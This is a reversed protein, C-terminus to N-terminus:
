TRWIPMRLLGTPSNGRTEEAPDFSELISITPHCLLNEGVVVHMKEDQFHEAMHEPVAVVGILWMIKRGDKMREGTDRAFMTGTLKRSRDM